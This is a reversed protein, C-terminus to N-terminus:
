RANQARYVDQRISQEPTALFFLSPLSQGFVDRVRHRRLAAALSEAVMNGMNVGEDLTVPLHRFTWCPNGCTTWYVDKGLV